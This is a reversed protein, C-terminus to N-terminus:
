SAAGQYGPRRGHNKNFGYKQNASRRAKVADEIDHFYGITKTKSNVQIYAYWKGLKRNWSVGNVGSTNNKQMGRNKTNGAKDSDILNLWRNDHRVGNDHDVEEPCRGTMYLFALRHAYHPKNNIYIAIYGITKNWNGAIKGAHRTNWRDSDGNRSFLEPGREKWTFNGTEPDYRLLEKLESQSIM